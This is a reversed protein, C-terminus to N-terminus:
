KDVFQYTRVFQGQHYRVMSWGCTRVFMIRQHPWGVCGGLQLTREDPWSLGCTRYVPYLMMYVFCFSYRENMWLAVWQANNCRLREGACKVWSYEGEKSSVFVSRECTHSVCCICQLIRVASVKVARKAIFSRFAMMRRHDCWCWTPTFSVITQRLTPSTRFLFSVAIEWYWRKLYCLIRQRRLIVTRITFDSHKVRRLRVDCRCEGTCTKMSCGPHARLHTRGREKTNWQTPKSGERVCSLTRLTFIFYDISRNRLIYLLMSRYNQYTRVCFPADWLCFWRKLRRAVYAFLGHLSFRVVVWSVCTLIFNVFIYMGFCINGIADSMLPDELGRHCTM